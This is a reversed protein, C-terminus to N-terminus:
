VNIFLRVPSFGEAQRVRAQTGRYHAMSRAITDIPLGEINTREVQSSHAALAALKRDFVEEIDVFVTPQFDVSTPGEYFLVNSTYRAASLAARAIKRHDQHTDEGFPAFLFRPKVERMVEEIRDIVERDGPLDADQFGGWIVERVGLIGAAEEQEMCRQSPEGGLGGDSLILVTIKAGDRAYKLLTGGCGIELDDPHPSIALINM